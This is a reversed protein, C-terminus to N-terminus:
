TSFDDVKGFHSPPWYIFSLVGRVMSYPVPGFNLSDYSDNRNDGLVFIHDVPVRVRVDRWNLSNTTVHTSYQEEGNIYLIGGRIQILDGELGVIRKVLQEEPENPREPDQVIVVAFRDPYANADVIIRDGIQLTPEMSGSVVILVQVVQSQLTLIAGVLVLLVVLGVM